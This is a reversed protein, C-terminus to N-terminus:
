GKDTSSQSGRGSGGHRFEGGRASSMDSKMELQTGLCCISKLIKSLVLLLICFQSGLTFKFTQEWVLFFFGFIEM